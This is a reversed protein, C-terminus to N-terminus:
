KGCFYNHLFSGFNEWRPELTGAALMRDSGEFDVEYVRDDLVDLAVVQGATLATLVIYNRPFKFKRRCVETATQITEKGVLLDLLEAGYSESWFPGEYRELFGKLLMHRDAGLAELARRVESAASRAYMNEALKEAIDSPVPSASM